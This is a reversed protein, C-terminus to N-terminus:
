NATPEHQNFPLSLFILNTPRGQVVIILPWSKSNIQWGPFLCDSSPIILVLGRSSCSRSVKAPSKMTYYITIDSSPIAPM